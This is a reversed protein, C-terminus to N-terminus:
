GVQMILVAVQDCASPSGVRVDFPAWKPRPIDLIKGFTTYENGGLRGIPDVRSADVKLRGTETELVIDDDLWIKEILGFLLHQNNNGM